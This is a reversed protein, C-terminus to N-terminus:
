VGLEIEFGERAAEVKTQGGLRAAVERSKALMESIKEDSHSPDHHFLFFNKVGAEVALAVSDYACSHGWGVHRAYEVDDYQSDMITVDSAKIFELLKRDQNRAFKQADAVSDVPTGASQSKLRGFLENDPLYTLSGHSTFLRYGVCVGPHNAFAAEVKVNGIKFSLGKLEQITINGPMQQMSIPFYPSEMQISLTAELGRRAGEYSLVRVVNKPDYAPAFFPFGQIHDWHTHTMLLTLELSKDKFESALQMGLPRIGTGADLIIIQGDARVEICSTNGGYHVTSPGPTPLSGRVGWFKIKTKQASSASPQAEPSSETQENQAMGDLIKFLESAIIPKVLVASAGAELANQRDSAYSNATTVIIKTSALGGRHGQIFRIVQFGNCGPMRLDCVVVAPLQEAALKLGKEGDEAEIVSWGRGSLLRTLTSRFVPDDDILLIKKM